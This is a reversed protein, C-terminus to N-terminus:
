LCKVGLEEAKKIAAKRAEWDTYEEAPCVVHNLCFIVLDNITKIGECYDEIQKESNKQKALVCKEKSSYCNTSEVYRKGINEKIMYFIKNGSASIGTITGYCLNDYQDYFWVIDNLTLQKM